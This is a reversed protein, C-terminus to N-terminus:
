AGGGPFGKRADEDSTTSSLAGWRAMAGPRAVIVLLFLAFIGSAVCPLVIWVTDHTKSVVGWAFLGILVNFFLWYGTAMAIRRPLSARLWTNNALSERM